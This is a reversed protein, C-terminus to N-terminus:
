ENATSLFVHEHLHFNNQQSNFHWFHVNYIGFDFTYIYINVGIKNETEGPLRM